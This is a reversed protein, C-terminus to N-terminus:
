RRRRSQGRKLNKVRRTGGRKKKALFSRITNENEDDNTIAIKKLIDEERAQTLGVKNLLGKERAKTYATRVHKKANVLTKAKTLLASLGGEVGAYKGTLPGFYSNLLELKQVNCSPKVETGTLCSKAATYLADYVDTAGIAINGLPDLLEVSDKNVCIHRRQNYCPYDPWLSRCRYRNPTTGPPCQEAIKMLEEEEGERKKEKEATIMANINLAM